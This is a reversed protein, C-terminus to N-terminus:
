RPLTEARCLQSTQLSKKTNNKNRLHLFVAKGPLCSQSLATPQHLDALHGRHRQSVLLHDVQQPRRDRDFDDDDRRVFLPPRAPTNFHRQLWVLSLSENHFRSQHICINLLYADANSLTLLCCHFSLLSGPTLAPRQERLCVFANTLYHGSELTRPPNQTPTRSFLFCVFPSFSVIHPELPFLRFSARLCCFFSLLM